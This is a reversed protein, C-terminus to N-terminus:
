GKSRKYELCTCKGSGDLWAVRCGKKDHVDISHGCEACAFIDKNKIKKM